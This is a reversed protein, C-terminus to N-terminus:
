IVNYSKGQHHFLFSIVSSVKEPGLNMVFSLEIAKQANSSQITKCLANGQPNEKLIQKELPSSVFLGLSYINLVAKKRTGVGVSTKNTPAYITHTFTYISLSIINQNLHSVKVQFSCIPHLHLKGCSLENKKSSIFKKTTPFQVGTAKDIMFGASESGGGNSGNKLGLLYSVIAVIIIVVFQSFEM